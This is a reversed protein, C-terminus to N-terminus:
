ERHSRFLTALLYEISSVRYEVRKQLTSDGTSFRTDLGLALYRTRSGLIIDLIALDPMENEFGAIAESRNSYATVDYGKKTIADVYNNRQDSDDEVIAIIKAM